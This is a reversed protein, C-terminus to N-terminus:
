NPLRAASLRRPPSAQRQPTFPHKKRYEWADYLILWAPQDGDHPAPHASVWEHWDNYTFGANLVAFNACGHCGCPVPNPTVSPDGGCWYYRATPYLSLMIRDLPTLRHAGIGDYEVFESGDDNSGFIMAM